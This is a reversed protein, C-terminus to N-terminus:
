TFHIPNIAAKRHAVVVMRSRHVSNRLDGPVVANDNILVLIRCSFQASEEVAIFCLFLDFGDLMM